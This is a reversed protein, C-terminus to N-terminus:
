DGYNSVKEPPPVKPEEPQVKTLMWIKKKEKKKKKVSLEKM